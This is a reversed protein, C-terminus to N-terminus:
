YIFHNVERVEGRASSLVSDLADRCSLPAGPFNNLEPESDKNQCEPIVWFVSMNEPM